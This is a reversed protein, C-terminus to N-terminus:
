GPTRASCAGGRGRCQRDSLDATASLEGGYRRGDGADRTQSVSGFPPRLQIATQIPAAEDDGMFPSGPIDIGDCTTIM